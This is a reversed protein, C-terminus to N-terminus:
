NVNRAFVRLVYPATRPTYEISGRRVVASRFRLTVTQTAADYEFAPTGSAPLVLNDVIMGSLGTGSFSTPVTTMPAACTGSSVGSPLRTERLGHAVADLGPMPAKEDATLDARPIYRFTHLTWNVVAGCSSDVVPLIVALCPASGSRSCISGGLSLGDPVAQAAKVRDGVYGSVENIAQLRQAIGSQQETFQVTSTQLNLLVALLIGVIAMTVLLEVLTFGQAGKM